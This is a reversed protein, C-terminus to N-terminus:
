IVYEPINIGVQKDLSAELELEGPSLLFDKRVLTVPQKGQKSPAYQVKRIGLEVLTRPTSAPTLPHLRSRTPPPSISKRFPPM